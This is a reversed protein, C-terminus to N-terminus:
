LKITTTIYWSITYQDRLQMEDSIRIGLISLAQRVMINSSDLNSKYVLVRFSKAENSMLQKSCVACVHFIKRDPPCYNEPRACYSAM